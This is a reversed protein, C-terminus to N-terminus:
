CDLEPLALQSEHPLVFACDEILCRIAGDFDAFRDTPMAFADERLGSDQYRETAQHIHFDFFTQQELINTHEHDRGNYRRLRFLQNTTAPCYALIVSFGLPNPMSERLILRFQSGHEGTIDLERERHGRKPKLSFRRRWHQPLPKSEHILADIERDTLIAAM